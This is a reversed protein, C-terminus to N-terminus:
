GFGRGGGCSHDDGVRSDGDDDQGASVTVTQATSWDTSTFTLKDQTVRGIVGDTDVTVGSGAVSM